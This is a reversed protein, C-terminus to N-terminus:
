KKRVLKDGRDKNLKKKPSMTHSLSEELTRNKNMKTKTGGAPPAAGNLGRNGRANLTEGGKNLEGGM